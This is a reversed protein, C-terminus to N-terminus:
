FYNKYFELLYQDGRPGKRIAIEKFGAKLLAKYSRQNTIDVRATVSNEDQHTEFYFTLGLFLAEQYYGNGWYKENMWNYLQSRYSQNRIELAGVLNCTGKEFVCLFFTDLTKVKELQMELYLRESEQSSVDLLSRIKESFMTLYHNFFDEHLVKLVISEGEKEQIM